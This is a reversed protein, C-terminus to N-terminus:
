IASWDIDYLTSYVPHSNYEAYAQEKWQEVKDINGTFQMCISVRFLPTFNFNRKAVAEEATFGLSMKRELTDVMSTFRKNVDEVFTNSEVKKLGMYTNYRHLAKEGSLSNPHPFPYICDFQAEIFDIVEIGSNNILEAVKPWVYAWRETPKYSPHIKRRRRTYAKRVHHPKVMLAEKNM